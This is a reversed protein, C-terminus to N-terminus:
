LGVGTIGLAGIIIIIGLFISAGAVILLHPLLADFDSLSSWFTFLTLVGSVVFVLGIVVRALDGIEM